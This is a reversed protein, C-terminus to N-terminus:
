RGRAQWDGSCEFAFGHATHERLQLPDLRPVATKGLLFGPELRPLRQPRRPGNQRHTSVSVGSSLCRLLLLLYLNVDVAMQPLAVGVEGNRM